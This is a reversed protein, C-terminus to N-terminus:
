NNTVMEASLKPEEDVKKEVPIKPEQNLQNDTPEIMLKDEFEDKVEGVDIDRVWTCHIRTIM